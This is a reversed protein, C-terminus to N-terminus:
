TPKRKYNFQWIEVIPELLYGFCLFIRLPRYGSKALDDQPHDGMQRVVFNLPFFAIFKNKKNKKLKLFGGRM